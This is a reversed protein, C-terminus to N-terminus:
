ALAQRLTVARAGGAGIAALLRPLAVLVSPPASKYVRDHLLVVGGPRLRGIVRRAVREGDADITDYSRVSWGVCHMGLRALAPETLPTRVGFPPRFFRPVVGTIGAITRQAAGIDRMMGRTGRLALMPSHVASHNEVAHGRAVIERTLAAHEVARQAVCFFTARARQGDLLDLVRPTVEPDPGDDFTLAVEGRAASAAPLRAIVPGLFGSSASFAFAAAVAHSAGVAGLAWPWLAPQEAVAALGGAHAAALVWHAPAPKWSRGEASPGEIPAVGSM